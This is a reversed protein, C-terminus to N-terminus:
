KPLRPVSEVGGMMPVYDTRKYFLRGETAEKPILAGQADPLQKDRLDRLSYWRTEHPSLKVNPVVYEVGEAELRFEVRCDQDGLNTFFVLFDTDEDFDWESALQAADEDGETRAGMPIIEGTTENVVDVTGIISGQPGPFTARLAVLPLPLPLQAYYKDLSIDLTTFGPIKVAGLPVAQPSGAAPVEVSLTITQETDLLNRLYFHPTFNADVYGAFPSDPTPRGIPIGTTHLASGRQKQPPPFLVATQEGTDPDAIYGSAILTPAGRPVISMGGLPAQSATMQLAALLERLSVQHTQYPAFQLPALAYRKGAIDLHVDGVAPESSVNNVTLLVDRTGGLDHWFTNLVPPILSQGFEAMNWVPGINETENPGEVLMRGGLSNGAGAFHISLTGERFNGRYDVKLDTLLERIDIVLEKAPEITLKKSTVSDGSLSHVSVTFDLPRLAHAMLYLRSEYGERLSYRPYFLEQPTNEDPQKPAPTGGAPPPAQNSAQAVSPRPLAVLLGFVAMLVITSHRLM